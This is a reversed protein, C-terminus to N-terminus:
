ANFHGFENHFQPNQDPSRNPPFQLSWVAPHDGRFHHSSSSHSGHFTFNLFFKLSEIPSIYKGISQDRFWRFEPYYAMCQSNTNHQLVLGLWQLRFGVMACVRMGALSSGLSSPISGEKAVSFGTYLHKKKKFKLDRMKELM